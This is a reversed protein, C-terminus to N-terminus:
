NGSTGLGTNTEKPLAFCNITYTRYHSRTIHIALRIEAL